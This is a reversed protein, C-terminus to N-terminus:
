VSYDITHGVESIIRIKEVNEGNDILEQLKEIPLESVNRIEIVM